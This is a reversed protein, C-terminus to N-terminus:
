LIRQARPYSGLVILENCHGRAADIATAVKDDERHGVADIFFTYSWNERGSPRKDIHSLNVSHADFASLVRLLAGPRDETSFMISTKDDGTPQAKERCIVFFRTINNPDDEIREFLTNVGYLQGALTSGIAASGRGPELVEEAKATQVARSTSAAPVLEVGPFQTALWKRCQSLAEPKSHVRSVQKPECNALLSHHVNLLLESYITIQRGHALFADLTDVVGGSNSNEIPVLGYNCHGRLVETFVGDVEHMDEYSVSSGFHSTAAQHSYSGPPGLYGIRLPHELSFSGSMIERWIAEITRENLPGQSLGLVKKLVEQERHPAYIPTGDDRKVEGVTVVARARENLLEVLRRDIEDIRDRLEPLTPKSPDPAPPNSAPQDDPM